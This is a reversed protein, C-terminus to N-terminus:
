GLLLGHVQGGRRHRLRQQGVVTRLPEAQRRVRQRQQPPLKLFSAAQFATGQLVNGM